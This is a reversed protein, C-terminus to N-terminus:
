RALPRIPTATPPARGATPRTPGPTWRSRARPPACWTRRPTSRAGVAATTRDALVEALGESIWRPGIHASSSWAHSLEHFLLTQDLDEGVVIEAAAAEYWGDYGYVNVKSDERITLLGGPWPQGVLKQLAPFGVKLNKDAFRSWAPDDPWPVVTFSTGGATVSHGKAIAADRASIIAWIEGPYNNTGAVLHRQGDATVQTFGTSTSDWTMTGPLVVEVRTHGPDGIAQVPFTAHGPGIRIANKSRPAAGAVTFTLTIRQTQGYYLPAPFRVAAHSTSPDKSPSVEVSLRAGASTAVVNRAGAPVPVTLGVFYYRRTGQSTTEDPTSNTVTAEVRGRVQAHAPDVVYTNKSDVDLGGSAYAPSGAGLVLGAALVSATLGVVGTRVCTSLHGGGLM